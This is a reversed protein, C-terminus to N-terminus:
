YENQSKVIDLIREVEDPTVMGQENLKEEIILRVEKTKFKNDRWADKKTYRIAKDLALSLEEKQELNDYLAKLAPTKITDPYSAASHKGSVLRSLEIIQKLYAEYAKTQAKRMAIIEDLLASMKEFYAPNTPNEEIIKKRLNHEITEAMAEKNKRINEPMEEQFDEGREVILDILSMDELTTLKRANQADLYFDILQRMGPEYQKYDIKEDAALMVEDKMNQFFNVEAKIRDVNAPKYGAEPMEDAINAFARVLKAVAKYMAHRRAETEKVDTKLETNGCFYRQYQLSEKPPEVPECLAKVAELADELRERAKTLRDELLGAVDEKEYADFAGSTYDTISQDLSKFLDKYDIIYGYEKDENDLRNVRCIAQFLGHDRMSKDIYLYTAPPADFGTLLKDVVILLKMQGPEEVFKKKVEKEFDEAKNQAKNEPINFYDAIMKKYVDYKLLKETLGEGTEEGKIDSHNPTYSTVVACKKLGADQFLQFYRCANYVSESVLMANGRGNALRDKKNMDVMIDMVIKELRSKASFVKKITGWRSKLETKAYDTLGKTKTDFWDDIAEHSSIDQEVDRAEYRLDLVVQDQVAEDFKYTHIYKGFVEMSTQKDKKLLPTGTFGIFTAEPLLAKMGEHLKGSQTRHCEDVFVFFNGKAKFDAPLKARLEDIYAQMEKEGVEEKGGFKHVLSCMLWPSISNLSSVLKEGSTARYLQENVGKFVKEIQEDLETRDTILLVRADQINERIWKALWVMTLSKGSGQTHWIIGGERNRVHQQAAKVGFYQNHRPLKKIGHDFIVFDHILELLREKHLMQAINKDLRYELTGALRRVWESLQLLHEGAKHDQEAVDKWRQFFKEPTETTAYYLGQHNNGAMVLQITNFFSQIFLHKQNDLNQRIGETVSVTSRKLEIVGLAIGNIYLVIDPRKKHQGNVTVEEAIAFDNNEVHKWDILWITQKNEGMVPLVNVGYRLMTYFAKNAEFLNKGHHTLSKDVEYLAKDILHNSYRKQLFERLLPEEINSNEEREEWHGLYRYGLKERFLKIIRNQTTRELQGISYVNNYRM